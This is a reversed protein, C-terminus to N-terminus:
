HILMAKCREYVARNLTRDDSLADFKRKYDTSNIYELIVFQAEWEMLIVEKM